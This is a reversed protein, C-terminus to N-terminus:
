PTPEAQLAQQLDNLSQDTQSTDLSNAGTNESQLTSELDNLSQDTQSTDLSNVSPDQSQLTSELDNLSQDIQDEPQGLTAQAAASGGQQLSNAPSTPQVPPVTSVPSTPQLLQQGLNGGTTLRCAALLLVVVFLVSILIPMRKM